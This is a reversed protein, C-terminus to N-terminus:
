VSKVSTSLMINAEEDNTLKTLSYTRLSPSKRLESATKVRAFETRFLITAAAKGSPRIRHIEALSEKPMFNTSKAYLVNILESVHM